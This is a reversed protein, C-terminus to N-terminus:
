TATLEAAAVPLSLITCCEANRVEASWGVWECNLSHKLDLAVVEMYQCAAKSGHFEDGKYDYLPVQGLTTFDFFSVDRDGRNCM